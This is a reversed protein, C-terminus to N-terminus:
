LGFVNPIPVVCAIGCPPTSRGVFADTFGFPNAMAGVFYDLGDPAVAVGYACDPGPLGYINPVPVVCLINCFPDVRAAFATTLLAGPVSQMCGVVHAISAPDVSVGYACDPGPSGFINPILNVCLVNCVPNVRAVFASTFGVPNAMCGVVYANDDPSAAVGYACDNGPLGFVNPILNVCLVNCVPDVRAVVASTLGAANTMWGVVYALRDPAVAVGEACDPGPTGFINPLLNVCLVNCVPDVRAVFASTVGAPNAMCGVVYANNDLGASVGRACDPGPLGFVNPILNTCLVNCAPDVRAVFASTAGAPNAMCGVVYARGDPGESVGYACDPGPIGFFNPIINTCVINCNPDVRSVFASTTGPFPGTMWGVVYAFDDRGVAV